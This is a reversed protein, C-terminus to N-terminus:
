RVPGVRTRAPDRQLDGVAGVAVALALNAIAVLDIAVALWHRQQM